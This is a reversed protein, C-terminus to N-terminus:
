RSRLYMKLWSKNITDTDLYRFSVSSVAKWTDTDTDQYMEFTDEGVRSEKGINDTFMPGTLTPIHIALPFALLARNTSNVYYRQCPPCMWIVVHMIFSSSSSHTRDSPQKGFDPITFQSEKQRTIITPITLRFIIGNGIGEQNWNRNWNRIFPVFEGWSNTTSNSVLWSLQWVAGKQLAISSSVLLSHNWSKSNM